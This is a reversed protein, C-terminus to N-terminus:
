WPKRPQKYAGPMGPWTKATPCGSRISSNSSSESSERKEVRRRSVFRLRPGAFKTRARALRKRVGHSRGVKEGEPESRRAGKRM